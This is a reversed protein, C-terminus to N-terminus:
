DIFYVQQRHLVERRHALERILVERMQECFLVQHRFSLTVEQYNMTSYCPSTPRCAEQQAENSEEMEMLYSLKYYYHLIRPHGGWEYCDKNSRNRSQDKVNALVYASRLPDKSEALMFSQVTEHKLLSAFNQALCIHYLQEQSSSACEQYNSEGEHQCM